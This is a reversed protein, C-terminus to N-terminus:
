LHSKFVKLNKNPDEQKVKRGPSIGYERLYKSTTVTMNNDTM